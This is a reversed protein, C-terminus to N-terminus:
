KKKGFGKFAKLRAGVSKDDAPPPPPPPPPAASAAAADALTVQREVPADALSNNLSSLSSAMVEKEETLSTVRERLKRVEALLGANDDEVQAIRFSMNAKIAVLEAAAGKEQMWARELMTLESALVLLGLSAHAAEAAAAEGGYGGASADDDDDFGDAARREGRLRERLQLHKLAHAQATHSEHTDALQQKLAAVERQAATRRLMRAHQARLQAKSSRLERVLIRAKASMSSLEDRSRALQARADAAEDRLAQM